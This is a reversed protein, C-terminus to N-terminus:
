QGDGPENIGYSDDQPRYGLEQVANGIDLYTRRNGSVGFYIGFAVSAELSKRFLQVLDRHSIWIQRERGREAPLDDKRVSGIRLCISDLRYLEYFMHAIAEGFVKSAGYYSIPKPPDQPTVKGSEPLSQEYGAVAHNSSAFVVRKVAAKRAAEYVNRTAIVNNKLVSEWGADPSPDAALHIVFRPAVAQMVAEIEEFNSIDAVAIRKDEGTEMDVGYLDYAVALGDWLINGILGNAGTILLRPKEM